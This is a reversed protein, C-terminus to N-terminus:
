DGNACRELDCLRQELTALQAESLRYDGFRVRYFWDTLEAPLEALGAARLPRSLTRRVVCAFERQTQASARELGYLACIKRFREYFEVTRRQREGGHKLRGLWRRALRITGRVTRFGGYALLLLAFTAVGGRWSFWMRPDKLRQFIPM